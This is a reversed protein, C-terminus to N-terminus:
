TRSETGSLDVEPGIRAFTILDPVDDASVGLHKGLVEVLQRSPTRRGAEIKRITEPSCSILDALAEQTLDISRRRKRLWQGFSEPDTM